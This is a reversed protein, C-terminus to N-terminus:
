PHPESIEGRIVTESYPPLTVPKAGDHQFRIPPLSRLPRGNPGNDQWEYQERCFQAIEVTKAFASLPREASINFRTKLQASRKPDKNLVLILWQNDARRAAYATIAPTGQKVTVPFIEYSGHDPNLWEKAILTSSHFTSLRNLEASNPRMQLMMLNGWSCKLEDTLYNPEYGYLYATTGGLTLFSGVVDAQFLAGEMDVEPRGAFVSYGYETLLWPIDSAVGDSRLSEIMESLRRPTQLLQPAADVCVDDFPYFEFSVFDFPAQRAAVYKLFRNMWFRNASEDPWTLLHEEFNQLSPGGLKLQPALSRIRKAVGSYLTAFDEPSVWQGDPEEGLEIGALSYGRALLYHVEALANEPTDYYVGVPVLVPRDNTLKSQLILDLGPQEVRDDRDDARHWPDTSSVYVITQRHRDAAHRIADHFHGNADLEGIQIERISFGLRDRVDESENAMAHGSRQLLIRVFQVPVAKDALGLATEGGSGNDVVGKPFIEWKDKRDLHLHMPDPGTWYEVRFRQAYLDGWRIKISNIRTPKGLDIVIWQPNSDDPEGTFYPDLYPNSKWFTKEDGDVLRSYGDDNAQDITNGRRPLRYGYSVTIPSDSHDDSAWYGCQHIPDSWTGQPNWHWVEGALETRLRYTLRGLGASLMERINRDTFMRECDGHEHGDVGGGVADPPNVRNVSHDAAVVISAPFTKGPNPRAVTNSISNGFLFCVLVISFRGVPLTDRIWNIDIMQLLNNRQHKRPRKAYWYEM